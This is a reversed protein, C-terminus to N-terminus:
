RRAVAALARKALPRGHTWAAWDVLGAPSPAFAQLLRLDRVESAWHLKWAEDAGLLEYTRLGCAFARAIMEARLLMGPGYSRYAPDYGTKLLYHAGHEELCFDFALPRGDWRLFALRLTGRGAAWSAVQRYFRNTDGRSRIATGSTGKWSAAEVAFGEGLLEDLRERGDQVDLTLEGEREMRRRQRRLGRAKKAGLGGLYGDWGGELPLWPSRLYSRDSVLYGAARAALGAEELGSGADPPLYCLGVQRPRRELLAELLRQRADADEGLVAFGPTHCNTASRAAGHRHHLPLVAALRGARRLALIELRGRGFAGWWAAVWGPRVWPAAGVRDALEDWAAALSEVTALSEVATRQDRRAALPHSTV